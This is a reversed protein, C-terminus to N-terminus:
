NIGKEKSLLQYTGGQESTKMRNDLKERGNHKIPLLYGKNENKRLESDDKRNCKM